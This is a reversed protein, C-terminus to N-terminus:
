PYNLPFFVGSTLISLPRAGERYLLVLADGEVMYKIVPSLSCYKWNCDLVMFGVWFNDEVRPTLATSGCLTM